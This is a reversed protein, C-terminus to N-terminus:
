KCLLVTEQRRQRTPNQMIRCGERNVYGFYSDEQERCQSQEKGGLWQPTQLVTRATSDCHVQEVFLGPTGSLNLYILQSSFFLWSCGFSKQRLATKLIEMRNCGSKVRDEGPTPIIEGVKVKLLNGVSPAVCRQPCAPESQQLIILGCNCQCNKQPPYHTHTHTDSCMCTHTPPTGCVRKNEESLQTSPIDAEWSDEPTLTISFLPSSM